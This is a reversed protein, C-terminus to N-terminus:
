KVARPGLGLAAPLQPLWRIAEKADTKWYGHSLYIAWADTALNRRQPQPIDLLRLSRITERIVRARLM